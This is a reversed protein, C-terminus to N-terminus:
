CPTTRADVQGSGEGVIGAHDHFGGDGFVLRVVQRAQHKGAAVNIDRPAVCRDAATDAAADKRAIDAQRQDRLVWALMRLQTLAITASTAALSVGPWDEIIM